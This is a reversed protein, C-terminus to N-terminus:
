VGRSRRTVVPVYSDATSPELLVVPLGSFTRVRSCMRFTENMGLAGTGFEEAGARLRFSQRAERGYSAFPSGKVIPVGIM